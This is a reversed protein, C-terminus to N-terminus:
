LIATCVATDAHSLLTANRTTGAAVLLRVVRMANSFARCPVAALPYALMACVAAHASLLM